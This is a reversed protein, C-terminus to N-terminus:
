DENDPAPKAPKAPGKGNAPKAPKAEKDWAALQAKEQEASHVMVGVPDKGEANAAEHHVPHALWKPYETHMPRGTEPHHTGTRQGEARLLDEVDMGEKRNPNPGKFNHPTM